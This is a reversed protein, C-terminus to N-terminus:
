GHHETNDDVGSEDNDEFAHFSRRINDEITQLASTGATATNPDIVTGSGDLFWKAVDLTVTANMTTADIVLPPNFEMELEANVASTFVFPTGKFTGEVRVSKGV